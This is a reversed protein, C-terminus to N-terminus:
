NGDRLSSNVRGVSGCENKAIGSATSASELFAYNTATRHRLKERLMQRNTEKLISKVVQRRKSRDLIRDGLYANIFSFKEPRTLHNGLTRNIQALNKIRRRRSLYFCKRVGQLDILNLVEDTSPGKDLVLINAAKLDDHYIRREHLSKFLRALKKLVARRKLCGEIGKLALLDERWYDAITKAGAIEESVYLSKILIGCRRRYEVAAVPKATAVGEQLLTVAGKLSRMAASRLFLSAMRHGITLANHQKIYVTKIMGGIRMPMFGVKIKREGKILRCQPQTFPDPRSRLVEDLGSPGISYFIVVPAQHDHRSLNLILKQETETYSMAHVLYQAETKYTKAGDGIESWTSISL